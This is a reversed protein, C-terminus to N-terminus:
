LMDKIEESDVNLSFQEMYKIIVSRTHLIRQVHTNKNLNKLKMPCCIELYPGTVMLM